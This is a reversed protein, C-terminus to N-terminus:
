VDIGKQEITQKVSPFCDGGAPDVLDVEFEASFDIMADVAQYFKEPPIDWVALDIDSWHNYWERNTLSGFVVVRTAGFKERLLAALQPVLEWAKEWRATDRFKGLNKAPNYQRLEEPTLELATKAM